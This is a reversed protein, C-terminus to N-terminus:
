PRRISSTTRPADLRYRATHRVHLVHVSRGRITFLIRYPHHLLQRIEDEFFESEPAEPCRGPMRKLAEIGNFWDVAVELSAATALYTF